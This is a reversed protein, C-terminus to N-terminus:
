GRRQAQHAAEYRTVLHAPIRGFQNVKIGQEKCWARIAVTQSNALPDHWLRAVYLETGEAAPMRSRRYGVLHLYYFGPPVTFIGSKAGAAIAMLGISGEGTVQFTLHAEVESADGYDLSAASDWLEFRIAPSSTECAPFIHVSGISATYWEDGNRHPPESLDGGEDYFGFTGCGSTAIETHSALLQPERRMDFAGPGTPPIGSFDPESARHGHVVNRDIFGLLADNWGPVASMAHGILQCVHRQRTADHGLSEAVDARHEVTACAFAWQDSTLFLHVTPYGADHAPEPETGRISDAIGLIGRPDQEVTADAFEDSIAQLVIQWTEPTITIPHLESM